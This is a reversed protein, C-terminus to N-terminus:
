AASSSSVAPAIAAALAPWLLLVAIAIARTMGRFHARRRPTTLSGLPVNRWIHRSASAADRPM